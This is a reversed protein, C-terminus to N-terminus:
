SGGSEGAKVGARVQEDIADCTEKAARLPAVAAVYAAGAPMFCGDHLGPEPFFAIASRDRGSPLVLMGAALLSLASPAYNLM